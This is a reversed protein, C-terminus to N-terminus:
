GDERGPNDPSDPSDPSDLKDPRDPNDLVERIKAALTKVSFPKEIFHVGTDLIGHDAIVDDTYGSMYIVRVQPYIGSVAEYLQRGNMGPMVVDTLLLDLPGTHGELLSLAAHGSEAALVRYGYRELLGAALSRVQQDDEVLLVSETGTPDAGKQPPHAPEAPIEDAAPLYVRITSGTGPKSFAWIDGGHQKIIGYATSMGLGTGKGKEKTSFFPEFMHALTHADMGSGTDSIALMVYSGPALDREGKVQEEDLEARATEMTLTGGQPMADQANVALNMVVQELKGVDGQIRPIAKDLHAQIEIDERLTRRLLRKFDRLLKNLDVAQFQLPQKRSFALLQRVLTQARKGADVIQKISEQRPDGPVADELLMEGYGLIPSLLNNLDHAVGGALRGISEMKQSQYFQEKLHRQETIDQGFSVAAEVNGASDFVPYARVSWIRGSTQREDTQPVGEAIAKQV